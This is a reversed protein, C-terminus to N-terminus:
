LDGGKPHGLSSYNMERIGAEGVMNDIETLSIIIGAM